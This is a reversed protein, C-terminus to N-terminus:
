PRAERATAVNRDFVAQQSPMLVERIERQEAAAASESRPGAAYRATISDIRARQRLSLSPVGSLMGGASDETQTGPTSSSQAAVADHAGPRPAEHGSARAASREGARAADHAGSRGADHGTTRAADHGTKPASVHAPSAASHAAPKPTEHPTSTTRADQAAAIAATTAVLAMAILSSRHSM